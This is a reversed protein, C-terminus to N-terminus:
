YSVGIDYYGSLSFVRSQQQQKEDDDAGSFAFAAAAAAPCTSRCGDDAATAGSGLLVFRLLATLDAM